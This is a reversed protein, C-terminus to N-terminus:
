YKVWCGVNKNPQKGARKMLMADVAVLEKCTLIKARDHPDYGLGISYENGDACGVSWSDQQAQDSGGQFMARTAKDCMENSAKMYRTWASLRTAEDMLLLQKTIPGEAHASSCFILLGAAFLKRM